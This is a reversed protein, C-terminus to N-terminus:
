QLKAFALTQSTKYARKKKTKRTQPGQYDDGYLGYFLRSYVGNYDDALEQIETWADLGTIPENRADVTLATKLSRWFRDLNGLDTDSVVPV